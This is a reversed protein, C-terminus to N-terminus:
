GDRRGRRVRFADAFATAASSRIREMANDNLRRLIELRATPYERVLANVAAATPADTPAYRWCGDADQVVFGGRVLEEVASSVLDRELGLRQTLESPRWTRPEARLVILTELAEFSHLREDILAAVENPLPVSTM